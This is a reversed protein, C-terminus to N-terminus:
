PPPGSPGFGKLSEQPGALNVGNWELSNTGDANLYYLFGLYGVVQDGKWDGYQNWVGPEIPGYIKGYLSSKISGDENLETRVRFIWNDDSSYTANSGRPDYKPSGIYYLEYSIDTQYGNLPAERPLRLASAYPLKEIPMPIFGDGPRVALMKFHYESDNWSLLITVDEHEGAGYPKIWDGVVLDFGVPKGNEPIRGRYEYAIKRVYMPVPRLKKLLKITLEPKNLALVPSKLQRAVEGGSGSWYYDPHEVGVGAEASGGLPVRCFGKEDTTGKAHKMPGAGWEGNPRPVMWGSIVTAGVIPQENDSDVVTVAISTEGAIVVYCGAIFCLLTGIILGYRM